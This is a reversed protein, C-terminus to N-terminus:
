FSEIVLNGSELQSIDSNLDNKILVNSSLSSQAIFGDLKFLSRYISKGFITANITFSKPFGESSRPEYSFTFNLDPTLGSRRQDL